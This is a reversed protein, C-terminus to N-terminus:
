RLTQRRRVRAIIRSASVLGLASVITFAALSLEQRRKATLTSLWSDSTGAVYAQENSVTAEWGLERLRENSVVWPHHAYAALGPPIPGRTLSWRWSDLVDRVVGPFRVRMPDAVLERLRDGNIWGDPAVNFVGDARRESCLGIASDLDHRHLFQAPSPVRRSEHGVAHALARVFPDTRTESVVLVPRLIAATRGDIEARWRNVLTEAVAYAMAISLEPQPRVPKSEDLPVPNNDWAGYVMASSVMVVHPCNDARATRLFERTQEILSSGDDSVSLGLSLDLVRTEIREKVDIETM